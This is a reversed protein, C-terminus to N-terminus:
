KMELADLQPRKLRGAQFTFSNMELTLAGPFVLCAHVPQYHVENMSSHSSHRIFQSYTFYILSPHKRSALFRNDIRHLMDLFTM